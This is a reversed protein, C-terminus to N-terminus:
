KEGLVQVIPQGLTGSPMQIHLLACVTPAVDTTHTEAWTEGHKIGWGMFLLPIHTDDMSPTGHNSGAESKDGAYRGPKLAVFIQGSRGPYYGRILRERLKDPVPLSAVHELDYAQDVEPAQELWEIAAQKVAERDLGAVKISDDNLYISFENMTRVLGSAGFQKQMAAKFDRELNWYTWAGTPLRHASNYAYNNTGGHDASLFVLYHGRGVREDLLSFLSALQRDLELYCSDVEPSRTGLQHAAMDTTSVSLTLMDCASGQGLKEGEIAAKAAAFTATVGRWSRWLDQSLLKREDRNFRQMWQPLQKMYYTSTVFAPVKKDFWYAGDAAHGAPLVAARDKLSIGIVRSQFNTAAKLEDGITTTLLNVPSKKGTATTTGVSQVTPDDVSSIMKGGLLYGNGAIGHVAPTTGTFLSAHGCATVTPVYDVLTNACSYGEGLMRALGGQGYQSGYYYLYDWRMQDVVIGVVLRPRSVTVQAGATGVALLM